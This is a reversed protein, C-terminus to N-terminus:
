RKEAAVHKLSHATMIEHVQDENSLRLLMAKERFRKLVAERELAEPNKAGRSSIRSHQDEAPFLKAHISFDM